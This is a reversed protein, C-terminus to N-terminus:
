NTKKYMMMIYAAISDAEVPKLGQNPMPPFAPNMKQPNLVFSVLKARDKEYKPLVDKYAPGVKKKGFEHCASCKANFIDEGTVVKLSIGMRTLLEEHYKEFEYALYASNNRTATAFASTEQLILFVVAVFVLFFANGAYSPTFEKIMGYVFHIAFFFLIVALISAAFFMGSLGGAPTLLVVAAICIPQLLITILAVTLTHKKIYEAYAPTLDKAGGNWAFMFFLTGLSAVTLSLLIFQLARVLVELSFFLQVVSGISEWYEPAAALTTGAFLLFLSVSLFLLAYKGSTRKAESTESRFEDVIESHQHVENLVSTLRLASHYSAAFAGALSFFGTGWTLVSVAISPTNQLLQAYAFLIAFYPVVGLLFIISKTPLLNGIIDKSFSVANADGLTRGKRGHYLSLVIAGFLYSVFPLFIIYVFSMVFHLVTIQNASQPLAIQKLFDM